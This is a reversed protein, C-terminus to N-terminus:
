ARPLCCASASGTAAGAIIGTTGDAIGQYRSASETSCEDGGALRRFVACLRCDKEVGEGAGVGEVGRTAEGVM